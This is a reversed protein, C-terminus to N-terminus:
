AQIEGRTQIQVRGLHFISRGARLQSEAGDPRRDSQHDPRHGVEM